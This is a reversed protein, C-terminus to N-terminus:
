AASGGDATPAPNLIGFAEDALAARDIASLWADKSRGLAHDRLRTNIQDLRVQKEPTLPVPPHEVGGLLGNLEDVAARRESGEVRDQGSKRLAANLEAVRAEQTETLAM